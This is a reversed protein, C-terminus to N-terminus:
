MDLHYAGADLRDGLSLRFSGAAQSHSGELRHPMDDQRLSKPHDQRGDRLSNM